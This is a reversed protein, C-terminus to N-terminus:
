IKSRLWGYMEEAKCKIEDLRSMRRSRMALWTGIGLVALGGLISVAIDPRERAWSVPRMALTRVRSTVDLGPTQESLPPAMGGATARVNADYSSHLDSPRDYTAM